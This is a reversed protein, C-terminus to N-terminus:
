APVASVPVQLLTSIKKIPRAAYVMSLLLAPMLAIAGFPARRAILVLPKKLCDPVAMLLIFHEPPINLPFHYIPAAIKVMPWLLLTLGSFVPSVWLTLLM